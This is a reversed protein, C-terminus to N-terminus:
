CTTEECWGIPKELLATKGRGQEGVLLILKGKPDAIAQKLAPLEPKRGVFIPPQDPM